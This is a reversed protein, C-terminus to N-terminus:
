QLFGLFWKLAELRNATGSDLPRRYVCRARCVDGSTLECRVGLRPSSTGRNGAHRQLLEYNKVNSRYFVSLVAGLFPIAGMLSNIVVNGAMRALIVKPVGVKAAHAILVSSIIVGIADGIGPFLDIISDFGFRIKTGPIVFAQDMLQVIQASLSDDGLRQLRIPRGAELQPREPPPTTKM